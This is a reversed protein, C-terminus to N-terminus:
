DSQPENEVSQGNPENREHQGHQDNERNREVGRKVEEEWSTAKWVVGYMGLGVIFLAVVQGIRLPSKTETYHAKHVPDTATALLQRM